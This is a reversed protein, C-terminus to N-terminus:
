EILELLDEYYLKVEAEGYAHGLQWAKAFLLDAKPHHPQVGFANELEAKFVNRVHEQYIAM